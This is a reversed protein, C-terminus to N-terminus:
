WEQFSRGGKRGPWPSKLVEKELFHMFNDRKLFGEQNTKLNTVRFINENEKLNKCEEVFLKLAMLFIDSLYKMSLFNNWCLIEIPYTLSYIKYM